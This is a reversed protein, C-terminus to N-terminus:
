WARILCDPRMRFFGTVASAAPEESMKVQNCRLIRALLSCQLNIAFPGSLWGIWLPFCNALRHNDRAVVHDLVIQPMSEGLACQVLYSWQVPCTRITTVRGPEVSM